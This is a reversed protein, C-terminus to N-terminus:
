EQPPEASLQDVLALAEDRNAIEGLLQADRVALLLQQYLKGPSLGHAVLDDGSILPSPDLREGPWALRERCFTLDAEDAEQCAVEAALRQLLEGSGDHILIRQIQPWPNTRAGRLADQHEVLWATRVTDQNSLRWLRGIQKVGATDTMTGLLIGLALAFSPEVLQALVNCTAEWSAQQPLVFGAPFLKPLVGSDRLLKLARSRHPDSLMRRMESTIREASVVRIQDAMKTVAQRTATDLEFDLSATFRIARLIRLKDESFRAEPDGIARVVRQQIDQEGEVFDIYQGNQPDFFLGNITFDRRRADEEASSFTVNVPRRGDLYAGDSRFTAVEVQFNNERDIVCIVGFAEGVPVAYINHKRFLKRVDEPRASTAVDYDKPIRGLLEDRVCGGAWLAEFGAQRLVHAVHKAFARMKEQNPHSMHLAPGHIGPSFLFSCFGGSKV